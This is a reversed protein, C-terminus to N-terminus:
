WCVLTEGQVPNLFDERRRRHFRSPCEGPHFTLKGALESGSSQNHTLAQLGTAQLDHTLQRPDVALYRGRFLTEDLDLVPHSNKALAPGLGGSLWPSSHLRWSATGQVPATPKEVANRRTVQAFRQEVAARIADPTDHM